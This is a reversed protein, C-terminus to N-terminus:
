PATRSRDAAVDPTKRLLVDFRERWEDREKEARAARVAQDNAQQRYSVIQEAMRRLQTRARKLLTETSPPRSM